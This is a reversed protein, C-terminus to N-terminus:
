DFLIVGRINEGNRMAEYGDNIEDLTYTKTVLDDLNLEGQLYLEMLRPIDKRINASGFLSGVIQKEFMTMMIAPVEMGVETTPHLNTVVLRSRKGGLNFAQGLDGASGVGMTMIVKDYGRNWHVPESNELADEISSFTHTAGFEMAKERKFEVPDIAAIARAGAMRAGQVANQGLGGAGVVAVYDGPQVDATYVASGWGTVVGCGLLCAKDLPWDQDIKVCSAENVVTHEAFTGLLCMLGLDHGDTTHHRATSDSIQLGTPYNAAEECLNSRGVVCSDCRGCAPVFGFVVHDGPELWDVAAGVEQVIGAGEHGGVIPPSAVLGALDGTLVHEDSHCLGSAALKVLVERDKPPDLEIEEVSWPTNVERLIAARTRM